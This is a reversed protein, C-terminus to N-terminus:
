RLSEEVVRVEEATLTTRLDGSVNNQHMIRLTAERRGFKIYLAQGPVGIMTIVSQKFVDIHSALRGILYQEAYQPSLVMFTPVEPSKLTLCKNLLKRM